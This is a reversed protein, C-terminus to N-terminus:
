GMALMRLRDHAGNFVNQDIPSSTYQWFTHYDWDYPLEGVSSDYRAVWLPVTDAFSQATGVCQEWWSTSTYIVPHRGTRAHYTDHFERIWAAMADHDKGYCTAGYPNYELDVAGPLTQGDASWGGGHSVFYDAQAAGSSRDPLAFHYAGRIMGVDYSGDYQQDFYPNTYGTGETAKVYAFRKGEDWWHAWDVEGQWSSVDIGDVTATAPGGDSNLGRPELARQRSWRTSHDGEVRAIQSGMAHGHPEPASDDPPPGATAPTHGGLLVAVVPVVLGLPLRFRRGRGSGSGPAPTAPRVLQRKPHTDM